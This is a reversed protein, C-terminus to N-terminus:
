SGTCCEWTKEVSVEKCPPCLPSEIWRTAKSPSPLIKQDAAKQARRRDVGIVGACLNWFLILYNISNIKSVLRPCLGMAVFFWDTYIIISSLQASQCVPTAMSATATANNRHSTVTKYLYHQILYSQICYIMQPQIILKNFRNLKKRM